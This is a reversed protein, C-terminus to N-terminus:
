ASIKLLVLVAGDGGLAPSAACFALVQPHQSLWNRTLTRLVASGDRSNMGKGHIVLVCRLQRQTAAHLFEQLLRRAADSYNGHLDLSDQVPYTGRKLKRLTLRSLGNRLFQQPSNESLVDALTDPVTYATDIDRVRVQASPSPPKIRNQEALPTTEGIAALFLAADEAQRQTRPVNL